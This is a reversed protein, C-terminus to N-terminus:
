SLARPPESEASLRLKKDVEQYRQKFPIYKVIWWFLNLELQDYVPALSDKLDALEESDVPGENNKNGVDGANLYPLQILPKCPLNQHILSGSSKTLTCLLTFVHSTMM